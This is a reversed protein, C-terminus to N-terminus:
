AHHSTRSGAAAPFYPQTRAADHTRHVPVYRHLYSALLRDFLEPQQDMPMHSARPVVALHAQPIRQAALRAESVPATLDRAGVIILTPVDIEVLRDSLDTLTLARLSGSMADTTARAMDRLSRQAAPDRALRPDNLVGQTGLRRIWASRGTRDIFQQGLRTRLLRGMGGGVLGTIVPDALVLGGVIGPVDVTLQTAIMGGMSHGVITLPAAQPVVQQVFAAVFQAYAGPTYDFASPPSASDGFGPLDLAIVRYTRRLHAMTRQWMLLSSAWGHLCIVVPGHGTDVYNVDIDQVVIRKVHAM